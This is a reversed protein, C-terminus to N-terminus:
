VQLSILVDLIVVGLSGLLWPFSDRLEDWSYTRILIGLGYCVQALLLITLNLQTLLSPVCGCVAPGCCVWM